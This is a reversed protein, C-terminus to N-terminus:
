PKLDLIYFYKEDVNIKKSRNAILELKKIDEEASDYDLYINTWLQLHEVARYMGGSGGSTIINHIKHIEKCIEKETFKKSDMGLYKKFVNFVGKISFNLRSLAYKRLLLKRQILKNLKYNHVARKVEDSSLTIYM